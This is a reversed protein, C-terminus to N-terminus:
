VELTAVLVIVVASAACRSPTVCCRTWASQRCRRM